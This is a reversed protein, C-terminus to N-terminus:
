SIGRASAAADAIERDIADQSPSLEAMWQKVRDDSKTAQEVHRRRVMSLMNAFYLFVDHKTIPMGISEAEAQREDM